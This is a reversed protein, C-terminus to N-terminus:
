RIIVFKNSGTATNGDSDSVTVKFVYLGTELIRGDNGTANWDEIRMADFGTVNMTRKISTVKQGMINYVDIQVDMEYADSNSYSFEFTTYQSFPNPYNIVKDLAFDLSGAVIFEVEATSPNNFVDWVRLSLTYKGEELDSFPYVVRGSKYTDIDAQYYDNLVYQNATNDNLVAVIDHGLQGTTNIGSEDFIYALLLPNPNVKDGSVFTTDNLYLSIQPGEYDPEYDDATGGVMFQDFYGHGDNKGDDIYYSIKGEGFKYAIDRPVVFDFEFLGNQVTAKGKFLTNTRMEFEAPSSDSSNGLTTFILRKDYVTPYVVGNYDDKLVGQEDVVRGKISVPEFAKITDPVNTTEVNYKPYAFKMSPDGLLVFNMIRSGSGSEVKSKRIIDGLRPMKGNEMPNFASNMFNENLTRNSGAWALRTTTFLASAGGNRKLFIRVGASLNSPDPNDFASFECTATMFVPLNYYNTWTQIDDFTLVREHALGNFGGHGIYNILLAGKNVLGNIAKNVEPYREGGALVVKEYADLYIKEINYVSHGQKMLSYLEEADNFHTNNDGDDAILAVRNRWDGYNSVMGAFEPNDDKQDLEEFRKDYRLIKDVLASADNINRVPLRGIGIDLNGAAGEGEGDALLGFFDDSMWSDSRNLSNETQFTPILNGGYGLINKNDYTGNGFLLLYRPMQEPSEARDYFMKMFNRIGSIDPVGSSFENYVQETTVVLVSLGDNENRFSALREAQDILKTPVVIVLDHIDKAHLNQNSVEGVLEPVLYESGDHAVFNMIDSGAVSFVFEGGQTNGLQKKINFRDTVDWVVVNNNANKLRYEAVEGSLGTSRFLLQPSRFHLKREVNLAIYNLWGSAGSATRNYKIEVPINNSSQSFTFSDESYRAYNGTGSTMIVSPISVQQQNNGASVEFSSAAPSRAALHTKLHGQGGEVLDNFSFNFVRSLTVNFIEGYWVRGSEILNQQDNQHYAFDTFTTISKTSTEESSNRQSVRKGEGQNTTLFYCNKDSYLHVEHEWVQEDENFYWQHPSKGYFLIYDSNTFNGEPNGSVYIANEVLDDYRFEDNAEPLMGAGNGFLSFDKRKVEGPDVGLSELHNYNLRYVGTEDVCLKYWDGTALVSQGTYEHLTEVGYAEDYVYLKDLNFSTLKEYTDAEKNYRVPIINVELYRRGRELVIKTRVVFDNERFGSAKLFAKEDQTAHEVEIGSLNIDYSIHPIDLEIREFFYPIGPVSDIFFSKGIDLYSLQEEDIQVSRLGEWKISYKNNSGAVDLLVSGSFFLIFFLLYSFFRINIKFM